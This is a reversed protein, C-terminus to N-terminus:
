VKFIIFDFVYVQNKRLICGRFKVGYMQVIILQGIERLGKNAMIYKTDVM